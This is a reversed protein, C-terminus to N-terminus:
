RPRSMFDNVRKEERWGSTWGTQPKDQSSMALMNLSSLPIPTTTFFSDISRRLTTLEVLSQGRGSNGRREM